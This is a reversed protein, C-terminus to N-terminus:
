DSIKTRQKISPFQCRNADSQAGYGSAHVRGSPDHAYDCGRYDDDVYGRHVTPHDLVACGNVGARVSSACAGANGQYVGDDNASTTSYSLFIFQRFCDFDCQLLM